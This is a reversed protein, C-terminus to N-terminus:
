HPDLCKCAHQLRLKVNISVKLFESGKEFYEDKTVASNKFGPERAWQAAGRWADILPDTAKRLKVVSETPLVSRLEERLRDDFGSFMTNGGTLFIDKLVSDRDEPKSLSQNIIDATIEVIGAQDLGAIAPQFVVEPIRIREVNLHIQHLEQQSEPNFPRPGRLFAHMMSKTWDAQAERTNQETFSPDYKLLQAEISKLGAGLDEEEEDDSQEGTAVTRYVTWDDDNAGFSDDDGGRRRKRGPQDSALAALTKMRQQSALSKRNGLDAKQRERDKLRQLMAQLSFNTPYRQPQTSNICVSRAARREDLWGELDNERRENELMEEQAKRAKEKEKEVKARARADVNSKMLRQHRKQKLGAEDLQEDPIDLLPFTAEEEEEPNEPGGVDKNRAKRVSKELEKITKDLQVEDRIEDEDLLRRIEKKTQNILRGQLEKFYELEQEKRVLKELRMKAAQEQLRRGGEKKREAIRALEEATKEIVTHETFPYQVIHDRDELGSWDLYKSVEMDYDKSVYCHERIMEEAQYDTFRQSPSWNPYKLRLLKLLYEVGQAGGWNLRTVSSMVAKSRLVPILHTSTHSSSVVLGNTGNNYKFSFLSDIGFALSPASYCEFIIETM